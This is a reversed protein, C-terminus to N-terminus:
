PILPLDSPPLSTFLSSPPIKACLLQDLFCTPSGQLTVTAQITSSSWNGLTLETKPTGTSYPPSRFPLPVFAYVEFVFFPGRDWGCLLLSPYPFPCPRQSWRLVPLPGAFWIIEKVQAHLITPFVVGIFFFAQNPLHLLMTSLPLSAL